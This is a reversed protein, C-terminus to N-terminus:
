LGARAAARRMDLHIATLASSAASALDAAEEHGASQATRMVGKAMIGVGFEVLQDGTMTAILPALAADAAKIAPDTDSDRDSM